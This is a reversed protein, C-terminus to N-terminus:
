KMSEVLFNTATRLQQIAHMARQENAPAIAAANEKM